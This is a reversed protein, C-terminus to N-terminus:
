PALALTRTDARPTLPTWLESSVCEKRARATLPQHAGDGRDMPPAYQAAAQALAGNDRSKDSILELMSDAPNAGDPLAYGVSQMYAVLKTPPGYYIVEGAALFLVNTFCNLIAQILILSRLELDDHYSRVASPQHITLVVTRGKSTLARVIHAITLASSADLGSTPEDLFLMSPTTVLEMGIATRKREGGSVGRVGRGGVLGKRCSQLGLLDIVRAVIAKKEKDPMDSKLRLRASYLM